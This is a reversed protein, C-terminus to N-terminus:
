QEKGSSGDVNRGHFRRRLVLIWNGRCSSWTLWTLLGLKKGEAKSTVQVCAMAVACYGLISSIDLKRWLAFTGSSRSVNLKDRLAINWSNLFM